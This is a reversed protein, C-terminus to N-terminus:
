KHLYYKRQHEPLKEIAYRLMTRPMHSVHKDLFVELPVVDRKGMERLMWGVAKHILDHKDTMLIEAIKITDTFQGARIFTFTALIAIRRNWLLKSKALRYLIKRDRQMLWEGVINPATLDVLDWNNIYKTNKLYLKYIRERASEPARKFQAVLILLATLREEHWPSRLLSEIEKLTAVQYFMRAVQRQDPVVIGLFKDGAGYQDPGTKFFRSLIAAKGPTIKRRLASKINMITM